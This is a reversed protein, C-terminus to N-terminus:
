PVFNRAAHGHSAIFQDIHMNVRENTRRNKVELIGSELSKAGVIIHWPLGVLDMHSFKVGPRELRDDYLTDIGAQRL